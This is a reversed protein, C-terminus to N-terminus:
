LRWAPALLPRIVRMFAGTKLVFHPARAGLPGISEHSEHPCTGYTAHTGYTENTLLVARLCICLRWWVSLAM